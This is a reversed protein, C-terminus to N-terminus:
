RKVPAQALADDLVAKIHANGPDRNLAERLETLGETWQGLRLLAVAYNVRIGVHQPYLGLAQRYKDVAARFDGTKELAAGENNIRVANLADQSFQDRKRLVGALQAKIKEAEDNRGSRRLAIQLSNLTSQDEPNVRYAEQLPGVADAPKDQRLYEAGLRYQAVADDADLHVARQFAALAGRDNLLLKRAMGLDSWAEALSPDLAVSEELAAAAKQVQNDGSYVKARLYLPYAAAQQHGILKLARDLYVAAEAPKSAELLAKGKALLDDATENAVGPALLLIALLGIM